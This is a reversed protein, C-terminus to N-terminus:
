MGNARESLTSIMLNKDDTRWRRMARGGHVFSRVYNDIDERQSAEEHISVRRSAPTLPNLVVQIDQEPRSTICIFLLNSHNSRVLDEVFDLVKERVSPTGTTILCEDIADMIVFIPLQGPLELMGKLCGALAADSPQESGDRCKTYLAHLVGWCSDFDCSLQFLLPTLLGWVNRKSEDKFDFYLYAILSSKADGTNKIDENDM